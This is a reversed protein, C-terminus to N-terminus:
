WHGVRIAPSRGMATKREPLAAVQCSDNPGTYIWIDFDFEVIPFLGCFLDGAGPGVESIGGPRFRFRRRHVFVAHELATDSSPATWETASYSDCLSSSATGPSIINSRNVQLFAM